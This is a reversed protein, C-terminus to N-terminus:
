KKTKLKYHHQLNVSKKGFILSMLGNKKIKTM